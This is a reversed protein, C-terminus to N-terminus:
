YMYIFQAEFEMKVHGRIANTCAPADNYGDSAKAKGKLSIISFYTLEILIYPSPSSILNILLESITGEFKFQHNTGFRLGSKASVFNLPFLKKTLNCVATEFRM